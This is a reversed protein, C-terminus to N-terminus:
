KKHFFLTNKLEESNSYYIKEFFYKMEKELIRFTDLSGEGKGSTHLFSVFNYNLILEVRIDHELIKKLYLTNSNKRAIRSTSKKLSNFRISQRMEDISSDIFIINPKLWEREQENRAIYKNKIKLRCNKLVQHTIKIDSIDSLGIESETTLVINDLNISRLYIGHSQIQDIFNLFKEKLYDRQQTDSNYLERLAMGALPHFNVADHKISPISYAQIIKLCPIGLKEIKKINKIFKKIHPRIAASSFLKKRPFLKLFTGDHLTLVKNNLDDYYTSKSNKILNLYHEHTIKQM